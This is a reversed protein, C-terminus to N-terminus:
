LLLTSDFSLMSRPQQTQWPCYPHQFSAFHDLMSEYFVHFSWSKTSSPQIMLWRGLLLVERLGQQLVRHDCGSSDISLSSSLTPGRNQGLCIQGPLLDKRELDSPIPVCRSLSHNYLLSWTTVQECIHLNWLFPNIVNRTCMEWCLSCRGIIEPEAM